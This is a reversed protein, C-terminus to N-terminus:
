DRGYLRLLELEAARTWQGTPSLLAAVSPAVAALDSLATLPFEPVRPFIVAKGPYRRDILAQIGDRAADLGGIAAVASATSLEGTVVKHVVAAQDSIHSGSTGTMQAGHLYINSIDLTAMTGKPLGGFIALLGVPALYPMAQEVADPRAVVVVIDDFGAGGNAEVLATHLDEPSMIQVNIVDLEIGRRAALDGFDTALEASRLTNNETVVIKAPGGQMEIMRQLHMRGMPGGGGVIWARGGVRVEWRNRVPGYATGLDLGPTGLYATAEYHVRGIDIAAPRDLPRNAVISITAGPAAAGALAELQAAPVHEAGHALLVIDDFPGGAGATFERYEDPALGDRIVPSIGLDVLAGRLGPSVDSLVVTAPLGRAFINGPAYPANDGPRGVIWFAGGPKVHLRRRPMYAAEVCAWPETLATEAYGLEPPVPVLYTGEDGDLMEPVLVTYEELGGPFVYGFALNQGKYYIDAQVAFRQGPKFKRQWDAGPEVITLAVEHGQIIPRAALDRGYLRPHEGGLRIIKVDSFCLGVADVRALVENHKPRPVPWRVPRGDRGLNELGAGYLPWAWMTEPVQGQAEESM